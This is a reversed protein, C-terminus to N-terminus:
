RGVGAVEGLMGVARWFGAEAKRVETGATALRLRAATLADEKLLVQFPTSKGQLLKQREGRLDEEAALVQAEATELVARATVVLRLGDRVQQIVANELDKYQIVAQRRAWQSLRLRSRAARQGVFMSFRLGVAGSVGQGRWMQSFSDGWGGKLGTPGVSGVVDLEPLVSNAAVTVDINRNALQAKSAKVEPRTALAVKVYRDLEDVSLERQMPQDVADVAVFRVGVADAPTFPLLLSRLVDQQRAVAGEGAIRTGRREQLGAQAEAVDLPTGVKADLRAQADRLLEAATQESKRFSKLDEQLRVLEWYANVVDFITQERLTRLNERSSVVDNHASRINAMVVDGAGRLLPQTAELVMLNTYAPSVTTFAQNTYLSDTRYLFRVTGGSPLLQQVGASVNWTDEVIVPTGFFQVTTPSENHQYNFEASLLPDFIAREAQYGAAAIRPDIRGAQLGLNARLAMQVAEALTLERVPGINQVGRPSPPLEVPPRGPPGAGEGEEAGAGAVPLLVLGVVLFLPAIRM